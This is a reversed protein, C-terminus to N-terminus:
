GQQVSYWTLREFAPVTSRIAANQQEQPSSRTTFLSIFLQMNPGARLDERYYRPVMRGEIAAWGRASCGEKSAIDRMAQGM